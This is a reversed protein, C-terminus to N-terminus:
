YVSKLRDDYDFAKTSNATYWKASGAEKIKLKYYPIMTYCVLVSLAGLPDHFLNRSAEIFAVKLPLNIKLKSYYSYIQKHGLSARIVQSAFDFLKNAPRFYIWANDNYLIDLGLELIKCQLYLDIAIIDSPISIKKAVEAPVSLARGMVTYQSMCRNRVSRLWYAIFSSARGSIGRDQIPKPNSACLGIGEELFSVLQATTHKDIIIDADYLVIVDGASRTFIENWGAAAGRRECHHILNINLQPNKEAFREVLEPTSDTSDDSIIIESISYDNSYQYSLSRLLSIINREENYSPIGITVRKM